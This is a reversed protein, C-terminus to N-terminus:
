ASLSLSSTLLSNPLNINVLYFEAGITISNQSTLTNPLSVTASEGQIEREERENKKHKLKYKPINTRQNIDRTKKRNHRSPASRKISVM